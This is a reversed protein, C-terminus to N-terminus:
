ESIIKKRHEIGWDTLNRIITQLTKGHETLEYRVTIPQTDLVTRKILKNIELEKLEKSLMKNSIGNIDNLIDSFRRKNYYCISSIISIKWKGSLVDMSDQVAMMERKHEDTNYESCKM